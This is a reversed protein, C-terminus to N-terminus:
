ESRDPEPALEVHEADNSAERDRAAALLPHPCNKDTVNSAGKRQAKFEFFEVQHLISALQAAQVGGFAAIEQVRTAFDLATHDPRKCLALRLLSSESIGLRQMLGDVTSIHEHQCFQSLVSAIFDSDGELSRVLSRFLELNHPTAEIPPTKV